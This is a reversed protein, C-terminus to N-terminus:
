EGKKRYTVTILSRYSFMEIDSKKASWKYTAGDKECDGYLGSLYEKIKGPIEESVIDSNDQPSPIFTIQYLKGDRFSFRAIADMGEMYSKMNYLYYRENDKDDDKGDTGKPYEKKIQKESSGWAIKNYLGSTDPRKIVAIVGVTVVCLVVVALVIGIMKKCKIRKSEQATKRELEIMDKVPFGCKPCCQARDSVQSDCEPCKLLAM